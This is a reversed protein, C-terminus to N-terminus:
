EADLEADKSSSYGCQQMLGALVHPVDYDVTLKSFLAGVLPLEDFAANSSPPAHTLAARLPAHAQADEAPPAAGGGRVEAFM